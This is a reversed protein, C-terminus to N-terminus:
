EEHTLHVKIDMLALAIEKMSEAMSIFAYAQALLAYSGVTHGVTKEAFDAQKLAEYLPSFDEEYYKAV